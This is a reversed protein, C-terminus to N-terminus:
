IFYQHIENEKANIASTNDDNTNDDNNNAIMQNLEMKAM